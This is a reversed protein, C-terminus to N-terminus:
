AKAKEEQCGTCEGAEKEEDTFMFDGCKCIKHTPSAPPTLKHGNDSRLLQLRQFQKRLKVASLINTRWFDDQQCWRIAAEIDKYSRKDIRHLKNIDYAWTDINPQKGDPDNKRIESYLLTALNKDQSTIYKDKSSATSSSTRLANGECQTRMAKANRENDWRVKASGAAKARREQQKKWERLLGEQVLRGRKRKFCLKLNVSKQVFTDHSVRAWKALKEDDDPLTCPPTQQWAVCCLLWYMGVEEADMLIVNDDGLFQKPYFQFAPSKHLPNAPM